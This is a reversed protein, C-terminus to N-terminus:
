SSVPGLPSLPPHKLEARPLDSEMHRGVRQELLGTNVSATCPLPSIQPLLLAPTAHVVSTELETSGTLTDAGLAELDGVDVSSGVPGEDVPESCDGGSPRRALIRLERVSLPTGSSAQSM